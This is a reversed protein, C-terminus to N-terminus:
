DLHTIKFTFQFQVGKMKETELLLQFPLTSQFQLL